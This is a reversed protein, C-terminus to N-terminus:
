DKDNGNNAILEMRGPKKWLFEKFDPDDHLLQKTIARKKEGGQGKPLLVYLRIAYLNYNSLVSMLSHKVTVIRESYGNLVGIRVVSNGSKGENGNDM